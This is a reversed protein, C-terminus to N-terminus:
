DISFIPVPLATKAVAFLVPFYSHSILILDINCRSKSLFVHELLTLRVNSKEKKVSVIRSWVLQCSSM